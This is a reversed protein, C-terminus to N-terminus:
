PAWEADLDIVLYYINSNTTKDEFKCLILVGLFNFYQYQKKYTTQYDIIENVKNNNLIRQFQPVIIKYNKILNTISIEKIIANM